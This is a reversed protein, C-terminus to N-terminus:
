EKARVVFRDPESWADALGVAPDFRVM